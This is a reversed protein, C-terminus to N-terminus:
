GDLAPVVSRLKWSRQQQACCIGDAWRVYYFAVLLLGGAFGSIGVFQRWRAISSLVIHLLQVYHGPLLRTGDRGLRCDLSFSFLESIADAPYDAGMDGRWRCQFGGLRRPRRGRVRRHV